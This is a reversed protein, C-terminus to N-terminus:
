YLVDAEEFLKRSWSAYVFALMRFVNAAPIKPRINITTGSPLIFHGVWQWPNVLYTSRADPTLIETQETSACSIVDFKLKDRLLVAEETRLLVETREQEKLYLVQVRPDVVM